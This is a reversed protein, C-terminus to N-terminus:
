QEAVFSVNDLSLWTSSVNTHVTMNGNPQIQIRAWNDASQVSKLYQQAPRYGAPLTAFTTGDTTVGSRILGKLHVVGDSAKTYRPTTYISGYSVWSNQLTLTCWQTTCTSGDVRAAPFFMLHISQWVNSYTGKKMVSGASNIGIHANANNADIAVHMFESPRSGAPLTFMPTENTTVGGSLNAKIRVRGAGDTMYGPTVQYPSTNFNVWGNLLSSVTTFSTGSPMFSIENFTLWTNNGIQFRVTGDAWVDVRAAANAYGTQFILNEAPRYGVPLTAIVTSSTTTGSKVMGKIIVVGASTKTFAADTTQYGTSSLGYNVWSNELLMSAWVPITLDATGYGSSGAPSTATVRINVKDGHSVTRSYTTTTQSAPENTWSGTTHALTVPNWTDIRYDVSYSTAGTVNAWTFTATTPSAAAIASPTVTPAGPVVDAVVPAIASANTDLRTARLTASREISRGAVSQEANISVSVTPTSQLATNRNAVSASTDSATASPSTSDTATFYQVSLGSSSVGDVLKIDNTTCFVSTYGPACSPQQWPVGCRVSTSAYNSPMISRRWLTDDKVFYVVNMTMPKNNKIETSGCSNPTNNLYVIASSTSLPNGNTVLMNLIISTGSTGGVNTFNTADDNYGQAEGATLTVNNTALFTTSLKVDQEIRNMADQVNYTLANSARSALVEGVMTIIVTLFAGIALIVIPAIVLMEILTFGKQNHSKASNRHLM